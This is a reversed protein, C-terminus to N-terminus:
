PRLELHFVAMSAGGLGPRLTLEVREAAVPPAFASRGRYRQAFLDGSPAVWSLWPPPARFGPLSAVDRRRAAWEGTDIGAELTWTRRDGDAAVLVLDAVPTGPELAASDALYSDVVAEAVRTGPPLEFGASPSDGDLVLVRPAGPDEVMPQVAPPPLAWVAAVALLLLGAFAPRWGRRTLSPGLLREWAVGLGAVALAVLLAALWGPVLGLLGLLDVQPSARLWPYTSLLGVGTVLAGSWVTQLEAVAGRGRLTLAAVALAAALADPDRAVRWALLALLLAMAAQRRRGAAPLLAAPLLLVPWSLLQLSATWGRVAPMAAALGLALLGAAVQPGRRPLWCVAAALALVPGLGPKLAWAAAVAAALVAGALAPPLARTRLAVAAAVAALCLVGSVTWGGALILVVAAALLARRREEASELVVYAAAAALPLALLRVLTRLDIAPALLLDARMLFQLGLAAPVAFGWGLLVRDEVVDQERGQGTASAQRVTRDRGPEASRQPDLDLRDAPPGDADAASPLAGRLRRAIAFGLALALLLTLAAGRTPGAPVVWVVTTALLAGAGLEIAPRRSLAAVALLVATSLIALYRTEVAAAPDAQAAGYTAMALGAALAVALQALLGGNGGRAAPSLRRDPM